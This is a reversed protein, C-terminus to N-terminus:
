RDKKEGQVLKAEAAMMIKIPIDLRLFRCKGGQDDCIHYLAYADLRVKDRAERPTKVEFDLAREETSVPERIAPTQLLRDSVQGGDPPDVWFQLPEAENNWHAQKKPDLRLVVQVRVAQGPRVRAPVVTVEARILGDKDRHVRGHPDPARVEGLQALAKVPQAIEAGVPRVTLSVPKQGRARVDKEAAEVWDYFAYPKDLRPGYQQIRRRWIYQNPDFDLAQGWADIAAQLDGPRRRASESRRRFCVGLRFLAPGDKPELRLARGYADMAEELHDDGGWLALADGLDRWPAATYSEKARARLADWDPSAGSRKLVPTIRSSDKGQADDAFSRELFEAQFTGLAPRTSRVIGHEDIAVLIPVGTAELVNIPDHLIPWDFGKWQALLLCRDAHQEQTVGLLVLRGEKVWKAAGEHWVPVHQRCGV